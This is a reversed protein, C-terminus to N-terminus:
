RAREAILAKAREIPLRVIGQQTDVWGYSTTLATQEEHYTQFDGTPDVQLRPAPADQVYQAMPSIRTASIHMWYSYGKHFALGLVCCGFMCLELILIFLAVASVNIDRREHGIGEVPDPQHESNV